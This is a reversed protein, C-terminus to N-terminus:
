GVGSAIGVGTSSEYVDKDIAIEHVNGTSTRPINADFTREAGRV